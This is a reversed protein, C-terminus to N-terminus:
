WLARVGEPAAQSAPKSMPKTVTTRTERISAGSESTSTSSSGGASGSSTTGSARVVTCSFNTSNAGEKGSTTLTAQGTPFEQIIFEAGDKALFTYITSSSDGYGVGNKLMLTQGRTNVAEYTFRDRNNAEATVTIAGMNGCDFATTKALLKSIVFTPNAPKPNARAIAPILCVGLSLLGSFTILRGVQQTLTNM